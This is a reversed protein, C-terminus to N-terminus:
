LFTACHVCLSSFLAEVQLYHMILVIDVLPDQIILPCPPGMGHPIHASAGGFPTSDDGDISHFSALPLWMGKHMDHVLPQHTCTPPQYNYFM